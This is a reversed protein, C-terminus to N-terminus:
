KVVFFFRFDTRLHLLLFLLLLLLLLVVVVVVVVLFLQSSSSSSVRLTLDIFVRCRCFYLVLRFSLFDSRNECEFSLFVLLYCLLFTSILVAVQRVTLSQINTTKMDTYATSAAEITSEM